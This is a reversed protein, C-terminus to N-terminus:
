PRLDFDNHTKHKGNAETITKQRSSYLYGASVGFSLGFGRERHPTFNFNLMLPVTVYDAALKNKSYTTSTDIIVKTPNVEYKVRDQYRYNNLELGIGSKLSVINKILGMREMVIWINVDVSKGTRLSFWHDTAGPAFGNVPDQITPSNYDTKDNYNAFGLDFIFWNTSFRSPENHHRHWSKASSDGYYDSNGHAKIITMNGVHITDNKNATSDTQALGSLCVCIGALFTTIRKM